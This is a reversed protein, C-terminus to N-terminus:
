FGYILAFGFMFFQTIKSGNGPPMKGTHVKALMEPLLFAETM